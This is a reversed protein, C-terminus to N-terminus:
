TNSQVEKSKYPLLLFAGRKFKQSFGFFNRRFFPKFLIFIKLSRVEFIYKMAELLKPAFNNIVSLNPMIMKGVEKNVRNNRDSTCM